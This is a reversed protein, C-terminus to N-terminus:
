HATTVRGRSSVEPIRCIRVVMATTSVNYETAALLVTSGAALQGRGALRVLAASQASVSLYGHALHFRYLDDSWPLGLVGALHRYPEGSRSSPAIFHTVDSAAVGANDLASQVARRIMEVLASVSQSTQRALAQAYIDRFEENPQLEWYRDDSRWAEAHHPCSASGSGLIQAFGDPGIVAASALDAGPEGGTGRSVAFRDTWSWNDAATCAVARDPHRLRDALLWSSLGGACFQRVELANGHPGLLASQIAHHVPWSRSGQPGSGTHILWDFLTPEIRSHEVAPRGSEIAMEVPARGPDQCVAQWEPASAVEDTVPIAKPLMVSVATLYSETM